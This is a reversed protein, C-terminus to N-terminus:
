QDGPRMRVAWTDYPGKLHYGLKEALRVSAINAADWAPRIGRRLCELILAAGCAAALGKRRHDERTDIQIEIGDDYLTYSSAGAVVQGEHIVCFGLGRRVYDEASDFLSCLDRSWAHGMVKWYWEEDIPRIEYGAPLSAVLKELNARDFCDREHRFAYREFKHCRGPYCAEILAAWGATEPNIYLEESRFWSPIDTVLERAAESGSCGAFFAMDGVMIRACTPYLAHDAWARGMHGQLFAQIMANEMGSFVPALVSGKDREIETIM